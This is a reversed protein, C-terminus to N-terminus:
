LEDLQAKLKADVIPVLRISAVMATGDRRVRRQARAFAAKVAAQDLDAVELDLGAKALEEAALGELEKRRRPNSSNVDVRWGHFGQAKMRKKENPADAKDIAASCEDYLKEAEPLTSRMLLKRAKDHRGEAMLARARALDDTETPFLWAWLGM